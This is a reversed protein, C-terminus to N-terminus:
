EERWVVYAAFGMLTVFAGGGVLILYGSPQSFSQGLIQSFTHMWEAATASGAPMRSLGRAFGLWDAIRQWHWVALGFAALGGLAQAAREM